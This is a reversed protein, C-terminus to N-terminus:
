LSRGYSEVSTRYNGSRHWRRATNRHKIENYERILNFEELIHLLEEARVSTYHKDLISSYLKIDVPKDDLYETLKAEFDEYTDLSPCVKDMEYLRTEVTDPYKALMKCQSALLELYKPTVPNYGRTRKEGGDIGPTGYLAIRSQKLLDMYSERQGLSGLRGQINSINVFENNVYDGKLIEIKRDPNNSIYTELFNKLVPNQRGILLIDFNKKYIQSPKFRYKDSISLGWYKINLPCNKSKLFNYAEISSILILPCDKFKRIFEPYYGEDIFADVIVPVIRNMKAKPIHVYGSVHLQFYLSFSSPEQKINMNRFMKIIPYKIKERIYFFIRNKINIPKRDNDVVPINLDESLADEWEYLLQYSVWDEFKRDTIINILKM